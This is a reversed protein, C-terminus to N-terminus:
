ISPIKAKSIIEGYARNCFLNLGDDVKYGGLKAIEDYDKLFKRFNNILEPDDNLM